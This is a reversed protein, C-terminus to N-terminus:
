SGSVIIRGKPSALRSSHTNFPRAPRQRGNRRRFPPSGPVRVGAHRRRCGRRLVQAATPATRLMAPVDIRQSIAGAAGRRSRIRAPKVGERRHDLRSTFAGAPTENFTEDDVNAFQVGASGVRRGDTPRKRQHPTRPMRSKARARGTTTAAHMSRCPPAAGVTFCCRAAMRFNKSQSTVPCSIGDDPQAVPGEHNLGSLNGLVPPKQTFPRPAGRPHVVFASRLHPNM